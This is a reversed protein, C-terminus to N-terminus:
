SAAAHEAVDIAASRQRQDGHHEGQENSRDTGATLTSATWWEALAAHWIRGFYLAEAEESDARVLGLEYRLQHKRRCSMYTKIRSNTLVDRGDGDLGDLETHVNELRRWHDSEPTDHGSCIGLYQCPRGYELCANSNRYHRGSLRALRIEDAVQWLEEAYEVIESDLRPIHKRQYYRDPESLTEASLRVAYIEPTEETLGDRILDALEPPLEIGCYKGTARIMTIDKAAINKPRIGPKRTVDYLAGDLKQGDQWGQLLYTSVQSDIALRRWYVSNPDAIDDATTKAEFLVRRGYGNLVGDFKGAQRWTRSARGTTPNVIPLLVIREAEGELRWEAGSWRADYGVMLGKVKAGVIRHEVTDTSPILREVVALASGLANM